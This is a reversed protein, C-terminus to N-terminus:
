MNFSADCINPTKDGNVSVADGGGANPMVDMCGSANGLSSNLESSSVGIEGM